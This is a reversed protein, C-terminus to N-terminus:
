KQGSADMRAISSASFPQWDSAPEPFNTPPTSASFHGSSSTPIPQISALATTASSSNPTATKEMAASSSEPTTANPPSNGHTASFTPSFSTFSAPTPIPLSTTPSSSNLTATQM